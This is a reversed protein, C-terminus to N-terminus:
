LPNAAFTSFRSIRLAGTGPRMGWSSAPGSLRRRQAPARRRVARGPRGDFVAYGVVEDLAADVAAEYQLSSATGAGIRELWARRYADNAFLGHLYTGEVLGDASRAGDAGTELHFMPRALDAGHSRGTHIEYGAVPADSLACRGRAPRVTKEAHMTTEMDLLGLGDVSGAPGDAGAPDHVRRGLMQRGGCVGVVRGGARVHALIDHDWGQARLFALDGITSKTGFLMVVDAARPIPRGAAVFALDM